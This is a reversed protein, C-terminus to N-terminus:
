VRNYENMAAEFGDTLMKEVADAARIIAEHVILKETRHFRSLVHDVADRRASGIGIRLRPFENVGLRGIISKMGNHGGASGQPRIRLKGLPIAMDDYIVLIESPEVKERRVFNAVADGSLNMFTQPKMLTVEEGGLRCRAIMARGTRKAIRTGCRKALM